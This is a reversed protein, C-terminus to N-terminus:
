RRTLQDIEDAAAGVQALETPPVPHRAADLLRAVAPAAAPRREALSRLFEEDSTARWGAHAHRRRLGRILRRAALRTAGVQAYARALAEVHELPSRREVARRPRPPLPRAGLAALLLLAAVGAQLLARGPATHTLARRVARWPSAHTGYGHHYEDFVIPRGARGNRRAPGLPSRAAGAAATDATARTDDSLWELMRVATVGMGWRCARLVDNRLLDPDAIAVVRGRGYPFGLAAPLPLTDVGSPRGRAARRLRLSDAAAFTVTDARALGSPRASDARTLWYSHVRDDFWSIAGRETRGVSDCRVGAAPGAGLRLVGGSGSAGLGLSDALPQDNSAVFLLGAGRRVADLLMGTERPTPEIAPALTAYVANAPLPADFPRDRQEVPWGLRRAVEFLGRAGQPAASHTTLRPDGARETNDPTFLLTLLLVLVLAAVVYRPSALLRHPRANAGADAPGTVTM